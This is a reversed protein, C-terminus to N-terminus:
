EVFILEGRERDRDIEKASLFQFFDAAQAARTRRREESEALLRHIAHFLNVFDLPKQLLTGVGLSLAPFFYSPQDAVLIIPLSPCIRILQDLADLGGDGPTKLDLLVLDINLHRVKELAEAATGAIQVLYKEKLLLSVLIDRIAPDDDVVLIQDAMKPLKVSPPSVPASLEFVSKMLIFIIILATRTFKMLAISHDGFWGALPEWKVDANPQM